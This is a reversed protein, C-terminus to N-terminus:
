AAVAKDGFAAAIRADMSDFADEADVLLGEAQDQEAAEAAAHLRALADERAILLEVGKRLAADSSPFSGSSVLRAVVAECEDGLDVEISM